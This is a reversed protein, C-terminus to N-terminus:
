VVHYLTWYANYWFRPNPSNKLFDCSYGVDKVECLTRLTASRFRSLVFAM